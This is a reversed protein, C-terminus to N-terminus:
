RGIVATPRGIQFEDAALEGDITRPGASFALYLAFVFRQFPIWTEPNFPNPYKALLKIQSPLREPLITKLVNLPM